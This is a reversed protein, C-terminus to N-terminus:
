EGTASGLRELGRAVGDRVMDPYAGPPLTGVLAWAERYAEAARDFDGLTEHSHGINLHLSPYFGAVTEDGVAKAYELCQENWHLTAKSSPQHRAVYHAAVCKEWDTSAHSWAQQFCAAARDLDGAGGAEMGQACLKVIANDPDV